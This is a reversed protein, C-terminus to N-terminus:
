QNYYQTTDYQQSNYQQTNYQANYQQADYQPNSLVQTENQQTNYQANYQQADYQPNSLVQTENQQPSYEADYQPVNNYPVNVASGAAQAAAKSKKDSKSVIVIFAIIIAAIVAFFAVGKYFDSIRQSYTRTIDLTYPSLISMAEEESLESEAAWEVYYKLVGPDNKLLVGDIAFSKLGKAASKVDDTALYNTWFAEYSEALQDTMNEPACLIIWTGDEMETLWYGSTTEESTVKGSDDKHQTVGSALYAFVIDFDGTVARGSSMDHVTMSNFDVPTYSFQATFASWGSSINTVADYGLALLAVVIVGSIIKGVVTGFCGLLGSINSKSSKAM